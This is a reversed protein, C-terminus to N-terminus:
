NEDLFTTQVETLSSRAAIDIFEFSDSKLKFTQVWTLTVQMQDSGLVVMMGSSSADLLARPRSKASFDSLDSECVGCSSEGSKLM